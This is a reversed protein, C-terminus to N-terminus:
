PQYINPNTIISVKPGAFDSLLQDVEEGKPLHEDYPPPPPCVLSPNLNPDQTLVAVNTPATPADCDRAVLLVLKACNSCLLDLM